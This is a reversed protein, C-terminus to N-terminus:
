WFNFLSEASKDNQEKKDRTRRPTRRWKPPTLGLKVIADRVEDVTKNGFNKVKILSDYTQNMLHEARIVHHKELANVIRVSLAMEAILTLRGLVVVIAASM